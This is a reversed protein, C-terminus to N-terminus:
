QRSRDLQALLYRVKLKMAQNTVQTRWYDVHQASLYSGWFTIGAWTLTVLVIISIHINIQKPQGGGHPVMMFTFRHSAVKKLWQRNPPMSSERPRPKEPTAEISFWTRAAWKSSRAMRLCSKSTSRTVM